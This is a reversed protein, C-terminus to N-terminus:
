KFVKNLLIDFFIRFSSWITQGKNKSYDTYLVSVPAESYKLKFKKIQSLIETAHAMRNEKIKIKQAAEITMIRLGNHADTLLLGSFFYNIYRALKLLIKRKGSMNHTSGPLFRSGLVIDTKTNILTQILLDITAADHQGDADFTVIYKANKVIAFDIGTQIAAGQGLNVKHRIIHVPLKDMLPYIKEVSGDDVIIISYGYPLLQAIVKRIIENENYAPIVVFIKNADIRYSMLQTFTLAMM